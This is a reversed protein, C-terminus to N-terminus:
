GNLKRNSLFNDLVDRKQQLDVDVYYQATVQISSHGMIKYVVQLPAGSACLNTCFTKRYSHFKKYEVGVKKYYRQFARRLNSRDYLQGSASTFLYETGYNNEAMEIRHWSEHEEIAKVVEESLPIDRYANMSKPPQIVDGPKGDQDYGRALQKSILMVGDSIDDYRLALLEGLRAGTAYALIFLLKLRHNDLAPSFIKELEEETWVPTGSGEMKRDKTPVYVNATLDRCLEEAEFYRFIKKLTKLTNDLTAPPADLANFFRQIDSSKLESLKKGALSSPRIYKKYAIDYRLKTGDKYRPDKPFVEEMYRDAAPGFYQDADIGASKKEMYEQYKRDADLKGTGYFAKIDDVWEGKKNLKMGVKRRIRYYNKEGVSFNTKSAMIEGDKEQTVIRPPNLYILVHFVATKAAEEASGM